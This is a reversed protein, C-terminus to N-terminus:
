YTCALVAYVHCMSGVLPRGSLIVRPRTPSSLTHFLIFFPDRPRCKTTGYQHSPLTSVPPPPTPPESTQCFEQYLAELQRRHQSFTVREPGQWSGAARARRADSRRRPGDAAIDMPRRCAVARPRCMQKPSGLHARDHTYYRRFHAKQSAIPRSAGSAAPSPKLRQTSACYPWRSVQPVSLEPSSLKPCAISGPASGSFGRKM